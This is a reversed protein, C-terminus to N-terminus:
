CDTEKSPRNDGKYCETGKPRIKHRGTLKILTCELLAEVTQSNHLIIQTTWAINVSHKVQYSFVCYVLFDWTCVRM